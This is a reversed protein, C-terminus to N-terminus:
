EETARNPYIFIDDVIKDELLRMNFKVNLFLGGSGCSNREGYKKVLYRFYKIGEEELVKQAAYAVQEADYEEILSRLFRYAPTLRFFDLRSVGNIELWNARAEWHDNNFYPFFDRIKKVADSEKGYVALGMTKGEGDNLKFGLAV